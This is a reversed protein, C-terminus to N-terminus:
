EGLVRMVQIMNQNAAQLQIAAGDFDNNEYSALGKQLHHQAAKFLRLIQEDGSNQVQEQIQEIQNTLYQYRNQLRQPEKLREAEESLARVGQSMINAAQGYHNAEAAEAAQLRFQEARELQERVPKSDDYGSLEMKDRLLYYRETLNNYNQQAKLANGGLEYVKELAKQAQLTVQLAMKLRNNRYFERAREQKTRATELLKRIRPPGDGNVIQEARYLMQDTQELRNNVFENNREDQRAVAVAQEAKERAMVTFKGAALLEATGSSASNLQQAQDQLKLAVELLNQARRSDSEAVAERAKQLVEETRDMAQQLRERYQNGDQALITGTNFILLLTLITKLALKM